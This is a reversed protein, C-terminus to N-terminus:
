LSLVAGVADSSANLGDQLYVADSVEALQGAECGLVVSHLKVKEAKKWANYRAKTAAPIEFEGDTVLCVDTRGKPMGQGLLEPWWENPLVDFPISHDTGGQFFHGVWDLLEAENWRGPRLVIRTFM